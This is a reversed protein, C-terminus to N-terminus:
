KRRCNEWEECPVLDEADVWAELGDKTRVKRYTSGRDDKVPSSIEVVEDGNKLPPTDFM